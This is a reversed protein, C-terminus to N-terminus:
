CTYPLGLTLHIHEKQSFLPKNQHIKKLIKNPYFLWKTNWIGQAVIHYSTFFNIFCWVEALLWRVAKRQSINM